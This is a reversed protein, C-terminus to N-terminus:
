LRYSFVRTGGFPPIIDRAPRRSSTLDYTRKSRGDNIALRGNSQEAENEFGM